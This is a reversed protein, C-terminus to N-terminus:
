LNDDLLDPNSASQTGESSAEEPLEAGTFPPYKDTYYMLYAGVRTGWRITGVIFDFMGKPYKGTFLIIWFSLMNVVVAGILRFYLVFIHPIIMFAGFLTRVILRGRSVTEPYPMNFDTNTDTGGLGFAPYGDALNLMRANVRLQYRQFKVQYDFMGKPWKGTILIAWFTVFRVFMLGIMLFYMLFMHPIMIYIFGFFARLLLEGRSYSEQHTIKFHM